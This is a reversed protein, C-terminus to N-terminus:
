FHETTRIFFNAIAYLVAVTGAGIATISNMLTVLDIAVAYYYCAGLMLLLPIGWKIINLAHVLGEGLKAGYDAVGAGRDFSFRRERAPQVLAQAFSFRLPLIFFIFLLPTLVAVWKFPSGAPIWLYAAALPLLAVARWLLAMFMYLLVRLYFTLPNQRAGVTVRNETTEM